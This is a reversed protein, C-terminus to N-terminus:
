EHEAVGDDNRDDEIVHITTTKKNVKAILFAIGLILLIIIMTILFTYSALIIILDYDDKIIILQVLLYIGAAFLILGTLKVLIKDLM